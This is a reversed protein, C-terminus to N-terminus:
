LGLFRYAIRRLKNTGTSLIGRVSLDESQENIELNAFYKNIENYDDENVLEDFDRVIKYKILREWEFGSFYFDKYRLYSWKMYKDNGYFMEHFCKHIYNSKFQSRDMFYIVGDRYNMMWLHGDPFCILEYFVRPFELYGRPAVRQLESIFLDLENADVHELVHSCIVYDFDNDNFPFLGGNYYVTRTEDQAADERGRQQFAWEDDQFHRELFVSALPHPQGGPGIELVRDGPKINQRDHFYM